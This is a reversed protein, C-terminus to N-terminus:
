ASTDFRRGLRDVEKLLTPIRHAGHMNQICEAAEDLDCGIASVYLPNESEGRRVERVYEANGHFSSKAVGIVPYMEDVAQYVYEGLGKQGDGLQVHGDLVICDVKFQKVQYIVAMVCPLERKYFEGPVYEEVEDLYARIVKSPAADEWEFLVGVCTAGKDHYYIDIALNM